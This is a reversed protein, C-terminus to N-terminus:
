ATTTTTTTTTPKTTTSTTTTTTPLDDTPVMGFLEKFLNEINFEEHDETIAVMIKQDDGRASFNGTMSDTQAEAKSEKTKLEVGNYTMQGKYLGIWGYSGDSYLVRFLMAVNNPTSTEKVIEMGREYTYGFLNVKDEPAFVAVTFDATTETGGQLLVYNPDNDAAFGESEKKMEIKAETAGPLWNVSTANDDDGLKGYYFRDIGVKVRRKRKIKQETM